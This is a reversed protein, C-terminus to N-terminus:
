GEKRDLLWRFAEALSEGYKGSIMFEEALEEARDEARDKTPLLSQLASFTRNYDDSNYWHFSTKLKDLCEKIADERVKAADVPLSILERNFLINLGTRIRDTRVGRGAGIEYEILGVMEETVKSM